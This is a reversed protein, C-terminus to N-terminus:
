ACTKERGYRDRRVKDLISNVTEEIQKTPRGSRPADEVWEDKIQFPIINPDFGRDIARAYIHNITRTSLGTIAAIEATTKHVIPSKLAIIFARTSIDTTNRAM